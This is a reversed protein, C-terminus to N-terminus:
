QVRRGGSFYPTKPNECPAHIAEIKVEKTLPPHLSLKKKKEKGRQSPCNNLPRYREGGREDGGQRGEDVDMEM